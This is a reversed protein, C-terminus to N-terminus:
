FPFIAFLANSRVSTNVNEATTNSSFISLLSKLFSAAITESWFAIKMSVFSWSHLAASKKKLKYTKLFYKSIPEVLSYVLLHCFWIGLCPCLSCTCLGNWAHHASFNGSWEQSSLQLRSLWSLLPSSLSWRHSYRFGWPLLTILVIIIWQVILLFTFYNIRFCRLLPPFFSTIILELFLILIYYKLFIILIYAKVWCSM